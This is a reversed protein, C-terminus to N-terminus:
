VDGVETNVDAAALQWETVAATSQEAPRYLPGADDFMVKADLRERDAFADHAPSIRYDV